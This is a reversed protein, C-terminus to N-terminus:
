HAAAKRRGDTRETDQHGGAALRENREVLQVAKDALTTALGQLRTPAVHSRYVITNTKQDLAAPIDENVIMKAAIARAQRESLEFLQAATTLSLSSYCSAGYGALYARLGVEQVQKSLMNKIAEPDPFLSWVKIAILLERARTWSGQVLLARAAQMVHDRSNEPPGSFVQRESYELMRRFPKSIVTNRRKDTHRSLTALVPVEVLLSATLYVSELLELNIHMHFPLLRQREQTSIVAAGTASNAMMRSSVGQGLLEKFRISGCLESLIQQCEQILGVRFACLGLQVLARNYLVQLAPDAAQITAQIHSMLMLDRAKFFSDNLAYHYIHSLMARTRFVTNSQTYLIACLDDVLKVAYATVDAPSSSEAPVSSKPSIQSDLSSLRAWVEAEQRAIVEAPKYYIHDLRRVLLRCLPECQAPKSGPKIMTRETYTQARVILAYVAMEDRLRDVYETTHPDINQLSRVFEDDLREVLATVSGPIEKIGDPGPAPGQALDEPEHAAESVRYEAEHEELIDFLLSINKHSATWKEAAAGEANDNVDFRISILMLLVSISQYANDKTVELLTELTKVQAAKDTNKKGRSEMISILTDFVNESTHLLVKGSKGVTSFGGDVEPTSRQSPLEDIRIGGTAATSKPTVVTQAKQREQDRIKDQGRNYEEPDANYKDFKDQVTKISKKVKQRVITLSRTNSANMKKKAKATETATEDLTQLCRLYESPCSEYQRQAREAVRNVKDLDTSISVWDNIKQANDISKILGLLEDILKDRASKVVKKEDESESESESSGAAGKLFQNRQYLGPVGARPAEDDDESLDEDQEEESSSLEESEEESSNLLEEDSSDTESESSLAGRAFFRSM